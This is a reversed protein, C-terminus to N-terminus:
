RTCAYPAHLPSREPSPPARVKHYMPGTYLRGGLMEEIIMLAHGEKGLRRNIRDMDGEFETIPKNVRCWEPHKEAFGWGREPYQKDSLPEYAVQAASFWLAALPRGM